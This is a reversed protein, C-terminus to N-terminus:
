KVKCVLEADLWFGCRLLALEGVDISGALIYFLIDRVRNIRVRKGDENEDVEMEMEERVGVMVRIECRAEFIARVELRPIVVVGM